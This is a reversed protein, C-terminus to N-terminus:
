SVVFLQLAVALASVCLFAPVFFKAASLPQDQNIFFERDHSLVEKHLLELEEKFFPLIAQPDAGTDETVVVGVNVKDVYTATGAYMGLPSMALFLMDDVDQGFLQLKETSILVNSIMISFKCTAEAAIEVVKDRPLHSFAKMLLQRMVTDPGAKKLRSSDRFALLTDVRPLHMPYETTAVVIHNGFWEDALFNAGAPRANVAYTATLNDTGAMLPDNIAQYYRKIALATVTLMVDNVTASPIRDKIEKFMAADMHQDQPTLAFRWKKPFKGSPQKLKSPIDSKAQEFLPRTVGRWLAVCREFATLSRAKARVRPKGSAKQFVPNVGGKCMNLLATVMSAGDGLTHDTLCLVACRGCPLRDILVYRWWPKSMDIGEGILKQLYNEFDEQKDFGSVQQFHYEMDLKEVQEFFTWGDREVPVASFRKVKGVMGEMVEKKVEDMTVTKTFYLWGVCLIPAADLTGKEFDRAGLHMLHSGVDAKISHRPVAEKRPAAVTATATSTSQPAMKGIETSALSEHNARPGRKWSTRGELTATTNNNNNHEAGRTNGSYHPNLSFAEGGFTSIATDQAVVMTKTNSDVVSNFIQAWILTAGGMSIPLFYDLKNWLFPSLGFALYVSTQLFAQVMTQFQVRFISRRIELIWPANFLALSVKLISSARQLVLASQVGYVFLLISYILMFGVFLRHRFDTAGDDRRALAFLPFFGAFIMGSTIAISVQFNFRNLSSYNQGGRLLVSMLFPQFFFFALFYGSVSLTFGVSAAVTTGIREDEDLIKALALLVYGTACTSAYSILALMNTNSFVTYTKGKRKMLAVQERHQNIRLRIKPSSVVWVSVVFALSLSWLVRVVATNVQCDLGETNFLESRGTWGADCNCTENVCTGHGSCEGLSAAAAAIEVAFKNDPCVGAMGERGGGREAAGGGGPKSWARGSGQVCVCDLLAHRMQFGLRKKGRRRLWAAREASARPLALWVKRWAEG